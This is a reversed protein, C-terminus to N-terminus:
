TKQRVDFPYSFASTIRFAVADPHAPNFLFNTTEPVIASPVQLLVSQKRSLWATGLDRTTEVRTRWAPPLEEPKIAHVDTASGEIKLLTFEPPV